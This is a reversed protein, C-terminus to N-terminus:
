KVLQSLQKNMKELRTVLIGIIKDQIKKILVAGCNESVELDIRLAIVDGDAIVSTTRPRKGVWSLEGFIAGARLKTITIEKPNSKTIRVVGKLLVYFTYELAGEEIIFESPAFRVVCSDLDALEKMEQRTLNDFFEITEMLNLISENAM